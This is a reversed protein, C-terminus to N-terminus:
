GPYKLLQHVLWCALAQAAQVFGHLLTALPLSTSVMIERHFEPVLRSSVAPGPRTSFATTHSHPFLLKSRVAEGELPM